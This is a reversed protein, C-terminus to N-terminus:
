REGWWGKARIGGAGWAVGHLAAEHLHPLGVLAVPENAAEDLVDVVILSEGRVPAREEEQVGVGPRARERALPEVPHKPIEPVYVHLPLLVTM